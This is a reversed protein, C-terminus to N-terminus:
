PNKATAATAAQQALMERRLCARRIRLVRRLLRGGYAPRLRRLWVQLRRKYPDVRAHAWERAWLFWEYM